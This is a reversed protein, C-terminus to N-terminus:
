LGNANIVESVWKDTMQQIVDIEEKNLDLIDGRGKLGRGNGDTLGMLIKRYEDGSAGVIVVGAKHDEDTSKVKPERINSWLKGSYTFDVFGRYHGTKTPDKSKSKSKYAKYKPTYDRFPENQANYGSTYIRQYIMANASAGIKPMIKDFETFDKGVKIFRQIAQDVNM